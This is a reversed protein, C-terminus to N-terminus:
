TIERLRVAQQVTRGNSFHFVRVLAGEPPASCTVFTETAQDGQPTLKIGGSGQVSCWLRWTQGGDTSIELGVTLAEGSDTWNTRDISVGIRKLGVSLPQSATTKRTATTPTTDITTVREAM